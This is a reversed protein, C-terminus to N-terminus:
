LLKNSLVEQPDQGAHKKTRKKLKFNRYLKSKIKNSLTLNFHCDIQCLRWEKLIWLKQGEKGIKEFSQWINSTMVDKFPHLKRPKSQSHAYAYSLFLLFPLRLLSPVLLFGLVENGSRQKM